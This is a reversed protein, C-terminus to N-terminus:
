GARRAHAAILLPYNPDRYELESREIEEAAVGWLFCTAAFVNGYATVSVGSPEFEKELLVQVALPFFSRYWSSEKGSTQIRTIGPCTLLLAGGPRLIRRTVVM